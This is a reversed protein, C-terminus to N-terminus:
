LNVLPPRMSAAVSLLTMGVSARISSVRQNGRAVLSVFIQDLSFMKIHPQDISVIKPTFIRVTRKWKQSCGLKAKAANSYLIRQHLDSWIISSNGYFVFRDLLHCGFSERLESIQFYRLRQWDYNVFNFSWAHTKKLSLGVIYTQSNNYTITIELDLITKLCSELSTLCDAFCIYSLYMVKCWLLLSKQSLTTRMKFWGSLNWALDNWRQQPSWQLPDCSVENPGQIRSTM